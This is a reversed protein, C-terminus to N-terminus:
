RRFISHHQVHYHILCFISHLLRCRHPLFTPLTISATVAATSAATSKLPPSLKYFHRVRYFHPSDTATTTTSHSPPFHLIPPVPLSRLPLMLPPLQRLPLINLYCNSAAIAFFAHRHFCDCLLCCTHFIRYHFHFRPFLSPPPLCRHLHRRNLILLSPPQLSFVTYSTAAISLPAYVQHHPLPLLTLATRPMYVHHHPLPLTSATSVDAQITIDEMSAEEQGGTGRLYRGNSCCCEKRRTRRSSSTNRRVLVSHVINAHLLISTITTVSRCM